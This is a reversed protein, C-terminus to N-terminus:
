TEQAPQYEDANMGFTWAVAEKCKKTQPPVCLYYNKYSGDPEQTSNIVKLYSVPEDFIGDIQFLVMGTDNCRDIIKTRSDEMVKDFGIIKM